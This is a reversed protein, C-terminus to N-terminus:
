GAMREAKRWAQIALVTGLASMPVWIARELVSPSAGNAVIGLSGYAAAGLLVRRRARRSLLRGVAVAAVGGMVPAAVGSALRLQAPLVGHHGGGWSAAGWPAGMALATQFASM